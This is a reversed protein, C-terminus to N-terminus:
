GEASVERDNVNVHTRVNDQHIIVNSTHTAPLMSCIYPYENESLISRWKGRNLTLPKRKCIGALCNCFSRQALVIYLFSWFGINGYFYSMKLWASPTCGDMSFCGIWHFKPEQHKQWVNSKRPWLLNIPKERLTFGNEDIHAVIRMNEIVFKKKHSRRKFFLFIVRMRDFNNKDTLLPKLSNAARIFDGSKLLM